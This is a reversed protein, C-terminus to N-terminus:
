NSCIFIVRMSGKKTNKIKFMNSETFSIYQIISIKFKKILETSSKKYMEM